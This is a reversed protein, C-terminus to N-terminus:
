SKIAETSNDKGALNSEKIIQFANSINLPEVKIENKVM